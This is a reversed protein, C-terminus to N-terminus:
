TVSIVGIETFWAKAAAAHSEAEGAAGKQRQAEAAVLHAQAVGLRHGTQRQIDLALTAQELAAGAEGHDLLAAGILTVAQGELVRFGGSRAIALAQGAVDLCTGVFGAARQAAALGLMAEVEAHPTGLDRALTLASRHHELAQEHDGLCRHVDGVVNHANTSFVRDGVESATALAEAGLELAARLEGRDRHVEARTRLNNAQQHRAARRHHIAAAESLVELADDFRGLLRYAEALNDLTVALAYGYDPLASELEVADRYYDVARDLRGLVYCIVGLNGLKTAQGSQWGIERDILLGQEYLEAAESLRGLETSVNGLMGLIVSEGDRWGARRAHALAQTALTRAQEYEGMTWERSTLSLRAAAQGLPDAEADAAQRAAQGIVDWEVLHMGQRLYGRMAGALQWAIRRPGGIAAHTAISVLNHRETDLWSTAADDSDFVTRPLNSPPRLTAPFLREAAAITADLYHEHLRDLAAAKDSEETAVKQRAYQRILDHMTFRGPRHENVLHAAALRELWEAVTRVDLGSLAAAANMDIDSGPVLGLLRFLRRSEDPLGAYSLDFTGRIGAHPDGSVELAGIRDVRLKDVYSAMDAHPRAALNAAAIRLALPLHGCLQMLHAVQAPEARLRDEGLLRALLERSEDASLVGLTLPVAGQVAVLGDLRDRSTVVALCGPAAPLLPRVQEADDANDLLVLVKRGSLLSRYLGSAEEVTSPVRESPVGLATLFWSLAQLPRVPTGGYGRLNVFLQGDPFREAIRHAWHVALATKGMGAAGQIASIVLARASADGTDTLLPDLRKLYDYRGTFGRVDAPLQAPVPSPPSPEVAVQAWGGALVERQLQQLATGPELGLENRLVARARQYTELADARRGSVWQARMLLTWLTERLPHEEVLRHLQHEAEPHRGLELLAAMHDEVAALRARNLQAVRAAWAPREPVDAFVPGRWFALAAALHEAARDPRGAALEGHGSRSLREFEWADLDAPGIALEYGHERTVLLHAGDDGLLRRLRMVYNHVTKVATQPPHDGWLEDALREAAVIQGADALLLALLVRQQAAPVGAWGVGDHVRM